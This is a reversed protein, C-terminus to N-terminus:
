PGSRTASSREGRSVLERTPMRSYFLYGGERKLLRCGPNAKPFDRNNAKTVFYAPKDINGTLLYREEQDGHETRRPKQFYFYHAYSKFGVPLVYVDRGAMSKYFNIAPAQYYADIIPMMTLLFLAMCTATSYLLALLGQTIHRRMLLILATVLALLYLPGVLFEYGQWTVQSQLCAVLFEHRLYPILLDSRYVALPAAVLIVCISVGTLALLRFVYRALEERATVLRHIYVSALYSLPLYSMSSYHLIKTSVITFLIMVVWFLLRMLGMLADDGDRSRNLLCPLALISMPFCGIFVVVFHYYIPQKHGAVPTAFLEIQYKIFEIVFWPGHQLVEMGFWLFSVLTFSLAFALMTWLSVIRKCRLALWYATMTLMFILLGVPGKTLNALGILAGSLLALQAPSKADDQIARYAVYIGLFIFYNFVPDIIGSKFYMHPLFSGLYCVGWIFGFRRGVSRKGIWYLTLLTLVGFIANPLRAAFEGIGFVNMCLCQLWLFFPPKEWFPQFNIRVRAYDGTVIMERASEAFNIEDWDFLHVRGLNPIFFLLASVLLVTLYCVDARKLGLPQDPTEL